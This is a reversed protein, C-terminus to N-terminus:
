PDIREVLVSPANRNTDYGMSRLKRLARRLGWLSWPGSKVGRQPTFRDTEPDYTLVRYRPKMAAGM